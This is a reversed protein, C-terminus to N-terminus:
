YTVKQNQVNLNWIMVVFLWVFIICMVLHFHILITCLFRGGVGIEVREGLIWFWLIQKERTMNAPEFFNINCICALWLFQKLTGPIYRTLFNCALLLIPVIPKIFAWRYILPFHTCRVHSSLLLGRLNCGCNWGRSLLCCGDLGFLRAWSRPGQSCSAQTADTQAQPEHNRHM